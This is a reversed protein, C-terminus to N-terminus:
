LSLSQQYIRNLTEITAPLGAKGAVYEHAVPSAADQFQMYGVYKPRVIAGDLTGLTDESM